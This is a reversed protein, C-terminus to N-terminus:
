RAPPLNSHRNAVAALAPRLSAAPVAESVTLGPNLKRGLTQRARFLLVKIHVRTKGLVQAIQAVDMDEAYHLWLAQFQNEGLRERALRWLNQGDERLAILESPDAEDALDPMPADALPPAARHRDICQRRAITFLWPAFVRRSDFQELRQFARVFTDQTVEAADTANRCFQAAFAHVRGEYRYVLQEFADLSGAQAQRALEEDSASPFEQVL